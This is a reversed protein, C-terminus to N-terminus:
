RMFLLVQAITAMVVVLAALATRRRARYLLSFAFAVPFVNLLQHSPNHVMPHLPAFHTIESSGEQTSRWAM